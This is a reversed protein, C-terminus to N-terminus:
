RKRVGDRIKNLRIPIIRAFNEFDNDTTFISLNGANAVACILFDTHSGQVGKKRCLTAFDAAKEYEARSISEDEFASLKEKLTLYKQHDSIGSLLEQRIPGIMAVRFEIILERLESVCESENAALVKKRLSLSWISADVLVKM